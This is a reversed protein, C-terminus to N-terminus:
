RELSRYLLFIGELAEYIGKGDGSLYLWTEMQIQVCTQM